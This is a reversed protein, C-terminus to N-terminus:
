QTKPHESPVSRRPVSRSALAACAFGIAPLAALLAIGLRLNVLTSLAGIAAGGVSGGTIFILQFVGTAVGQIDAEVIGPLTAMLTVQGASFGSVCAALGVVIAVTSTGVAAAILLGLTSTASLALVIPWGGTRMTLAGASRSLVASTLGAPLLILGIHITSLHPHHAILLLPAAFQMVLYGAFLTFGSADALRFRHNASLAQPIFGRPRQRQHRAPLAGAAAM